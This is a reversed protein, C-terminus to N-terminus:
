TKRALLAELIPEAIHNQAGYKEFYIARVLRETLAEDPLPRAMLQMPVPPLSPDLPPQWYPRALPEGGCRRFFGVRKERRLREAGEALEPRDVEWILHPSKDCTFEMLKQGVGQGRLEPAVALYVLFLAAPDKLRHASALGVTRGGEQARTILGVGSRAADLIVQRPEREELPFASDYLSWFEDDPAADEFVIL